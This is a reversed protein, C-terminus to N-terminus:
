PRKVFVATAEITVADGMMGFLNGDVGFHRRNLTTTTTLQVASDGLARVHTPLDLDRQIGKISLQTHLQVWGPATVEASEVVLAISPFVEVDFFAASRLDADRKRIGTNVSTAEIELHGSVHAMQEERLREDSDPWTAQGAGDVKTFTGTVHALGWLTPSHFTLTTRDPDLRWTGSWDQVEM